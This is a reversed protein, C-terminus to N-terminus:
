RTISVGGLGVKFPLPANEQEHAGRMITKLPMLEGVQENTTTPLRKLLDTFYTYPEIGHMRCNEILTYIAM